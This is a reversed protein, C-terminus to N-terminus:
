NESLLAKKSEFEYSFNANQSAADELATHLRESYEGLREQLYMFDCLVLKVPRHLDTLCDFLADLNCGYHDPFNLTTKLLDQLDARNFIQECLIYVKM